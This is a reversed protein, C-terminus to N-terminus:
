FSVKGKVKVWSKQSDIIIGCSELESIVKRHHERPIHFGRGLVAPLNHRLIKHEEDAEKLLYIHICNLLVSRNIKNM